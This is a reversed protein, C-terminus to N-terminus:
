IDIQIESEIKISITTNASQSSVDSDKYEIECSALTDKNSNLSNELAYDKNSMDLMDKASIKEMDNNQVFKSQDEQKISNGINSINSLDLTHGSSISVHEINNANDISKSDLGNNLDALFSETTMHDIAEFSQIELIAKELSVERLNSEDGFSESSIISQDIKLSDIGILAIDETGFSLVISDNESSTFVTDSVNLIDGENLEREQSRVDVVIAKGIIEKVFGSNSM